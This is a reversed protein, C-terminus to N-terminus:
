ASEEGEFEAALSPILKSEKGKSSKKGSSSKNIRPMEIGPQESGNTKVDGPELVPFYEPDHGENIAHAVHNKWRRAEADTNRITQLANARQMMIQNRTEESLSDSRYARGIYTHGDFVEIWDTENPFFRVDVKQRRFRAIENSVYDVGNFRIGAKNVTHKKGARAMHALMAKPDM